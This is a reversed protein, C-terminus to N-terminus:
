PGEDKRRKRKKKKARHDTGSETESVNCAADRILGQETRRRQKRKSRYERPECHGDTEKENTTKLIPTSMSHGVLGAVGCCTMSDTLAASDTKSKVLHTKSNKTGEQQQTDCSSIRLPSMQTSAEIAATSAYRNKSHTDSSPKNSTREKYNDEMSTRNRQATRERSSHLRRKKDPVEFGSATEMVDQDASRTGRLGEGRVFSGYLGGNTTWRTSLIAPSKADVECSTAGKKATDQGNLSRLTEEFAKSWWQDAQADHAVKGVGFVNAKRSVLLPKSIGKGNPHLAHGSGPWGQNTLYAAANM